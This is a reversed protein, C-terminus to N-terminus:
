QPICLHIPAITKHRGFTLTVSKAYPGPQAWVTGRRGEYHGDTVVVVRGKWYQLAINEPMNDLDGKLEMARVRSVERDSLRAVCSDVVLLRYNLRTVELCQSSQHGEPLHIFVYRPFAPSVRMKNHRHGRPSRVLSRRAPVYAGLGSQADLLRDRFKFEQGATVCAM